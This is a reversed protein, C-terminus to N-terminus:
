LFVVLNLLQQEVLQIQSHGQNGDFGGHGALVAFTHKADGGHSVNVSNGGRHLFDVRQGKYGNVIDRLYLAPAEADRPVCDLIGVVAPLFRHGSTLLWRRWGVSRIVCGGFVCCRLVHYVRVSEDDIGHNVFVVSELVMM